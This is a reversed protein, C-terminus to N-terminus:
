KGIVEVVGTAPMEKASKQLAILQSVLSLVHMSRDLICHDESNDKKIFYKEAEYEVTLAVAADKSDDTLQRVDFLPATKKPDSCVNIRHVNNKMSERALEGLYYLIAEPSRLYFVGAYQDGKRAYADKADIVEDGACKFYHTTRPAILRYQPCCDDKQLRLGAKQIEVLNKVDSAQTVDIAHGMPKSDDRTLVECNRIYSHFDELEQKSEEKSKKEEGPYNMYPKMTGDGQKIDIRKVFLHLLMERPWGQKIYYDVTAISVPTTIGRMFDQSDLVAFEYSPTFSHSASPSFVYANDLGGGLNNLPINFNGTQFQNTMNGRIASFSTFYMPRRKSARIINLLLIQNHVKEVTLNYDIANSAIREKPLVACGAALGIFVLMILSAQARQKISTM